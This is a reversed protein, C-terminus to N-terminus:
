KLKGPHRLKSAERRSILRYAFWKDVEGPDLMWERGHADKAVRTLTLERFKSSGGYAISVTIRCDSLAVGSGAGVLKAQKATPDVNLAEFAETAKFKIEKLYEWVGDADAYGDDSTSGALIVKGDFSVSARIFRAARAEHPWMFFVCAVLFLSSTPKM